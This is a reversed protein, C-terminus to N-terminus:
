NRDELVEENDSWFNFDKCQLVEERNTDPHVWIVKYKQVSKYKLVEAVVGIGRECNYIVTTETDVQEVGLKYTSPVRESVENFTPGAFVISLSLLVLVLIKM